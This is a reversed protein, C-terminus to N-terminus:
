TERNGTGGGGGERGGRGKEGEGRWEEEEGEEEGREREWVGGVEEGAWEARPDPPEPQVATNRPPQLGSPALANSGYSGQPSERSGGPQVPFM